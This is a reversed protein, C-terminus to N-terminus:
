FIDWWPRSTGRGRTTKRPGLRGTKSTETPAGQPPKKAPNRGGSTPGGQGQQSSGSGSGAAGIRYGPGPIDRRRPGQQPSITSPRTPVTQNDTGLAPSVGGGQPGPKSRIPRRTTGPNTRPIQTPRVYNANIYDIQPALLGPNQGPTQGPTQSALGPSFGQDMQIEQYFEILNSLHNNEEQLKQIQRKLYLNETFSM